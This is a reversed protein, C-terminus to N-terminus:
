KKLFKEIEDMVIDCQAQSKRFDHGMDPQRVVYPSNANAVIKEIDSPLVTDDDMAMFIMLPKNIKKVEEVASYKLADELYSYPVSFERFKTPDEPLDRKSIRPEGITWKNISNRIDVPSCLAVIKTVEPMRAGAIIATLAGRSHGLLLIESPNQDKYSDIREKIQKLSNTITYNEASGTEWLGGLDLREVIYGMETLRKDFTKLHLYDPSDLSGPLLLAVKM